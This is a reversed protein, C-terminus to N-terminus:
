IFFGIMFILVVFCLVYVEFRTKTYLRIQVTAGENKSSYLEGYGCIPMFSAMTGMSIHAHFKFTYNSEWLIDFDHREKELKERLAVYSGKFWVERNLQLAKDVKNWWKM